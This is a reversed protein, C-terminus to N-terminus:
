VYLREKLGTSINRRVAGKCAGGARRGVNQVDGAGYKADVWVAGEAEDQDIGGFLELGVVPCVHCNLDYLHCFAGSKNLCASPM